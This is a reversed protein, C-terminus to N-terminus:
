SLPQSGEQHTAPCQRGEGGLNKGRSEQRVCVDRGVSCPHGEVHWSIHRWKSLVELSRQLFMSGGRAAVTYGQTLGVKGLDKKKKLDDGVPTICVHQLPYEARNLMYM